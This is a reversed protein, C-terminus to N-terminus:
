YFILRVYYIDQLKDIYQDRIAELSVMEMNKEHNASFYYKLCEILGSIEDHLTVLLHFVAHISPARCFHALLMNFYTVQGNKDHLAASMSNGAKATATM